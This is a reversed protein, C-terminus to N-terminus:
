ARREGTKPPRGRVSYPFRKAPELNGTADFSLPRREDTLELHPHKRAEDVLPPSVWLEALELTNPVVAIRVAEVRPQWCTQMGM